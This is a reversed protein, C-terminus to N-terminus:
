VGLLDAPGAQAPLIGTSAADADGTRGSTTRGADGAMAAVEGTEALAHDNASSVSSWSGSLLDVLSSTSGM